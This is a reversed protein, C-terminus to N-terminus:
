SSSQILDNMSFLQPPKDILWKAALLAGKAFVDRSLAEHTLTIKEEEFAYHINHVGIVNGIRHSIIPIPLKKSLANAILLATGSPSDKKGTHHSEEISVTKDLPHSFLQQAIDILLAIGISFNASYFIPIQSSAQLLIERNKESLGTTGMVLPKKTAVSFSLLDPLLLPTSFDILVDSNILTDFSASAYVGLLHTNGLSGLDQGLATSQQSCLGGVLAVNKDSHCLAILRRGMKGSAGIIGIRISMLTRLIGFLLNIESYMKKKM